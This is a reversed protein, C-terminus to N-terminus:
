FLPTIKTSNMGLMDRTDLHKFFALTKKKTKKKPKYSATELAGYVTYIKAVQINMKGTM